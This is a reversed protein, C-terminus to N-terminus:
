INEIEDLCGSQSKAIGVGLEEVLKKDWVIEWEEFNM